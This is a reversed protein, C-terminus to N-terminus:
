FTPPAPSPETAQNVYQSPFYLVEDPVQSSAAVASANSGSTALILWVIASLALAFFASIIIALDNSLRPGTDQKDEASGLHSVLVDATNM